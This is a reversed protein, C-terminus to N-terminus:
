RGNLLDEVWALHRYFQFYQRAASSFPSEPMLRKKMRDRVLKRSPGDPPLEQYTQVDDKIAHYLEERKSNFAPHDLNLLIKSEDVRRPAISDAAYNPNLLPLGDAQFTVLDCDRPNCPDLIIPKEQRLKNKGTARGAPPLLPFKEGKGGNCGHTENYEPSNALPCSVRFNEPDFALWWYDCKPRYHDIALPGGVLEAETYWCKNGLIATLKDKLPSWKNTGNKDIYGQRSAPPKRAVKKHAKFLRCKEKEGEPTAFIQSLIQNLPVHRM